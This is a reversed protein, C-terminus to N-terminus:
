SNTYQQGGNSRTADIRPQPATPAPGDCGGELMVTATVGDFAVTKNPSCCVNTAVTLLEVFLATIQLTFPIGPPLAATPVIVAPPVYVAGALKGAGLETETVAVLASSVLLFELARAIMVLSTETDTAGLVTETSSPVACGNAAATFEALLGFRDTVHISDPLPHVPTAHPVTSEPPVYVAGPIIGVGALTLKIAMLTASGDLIAVAVILTVLVNKSETAPGAETFAPV